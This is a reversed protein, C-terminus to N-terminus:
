KELDSLFTRVVELYGEFDYRLIGHGCEPFIALRTNPRRETMAEAMEASLLHSEGGRLLLASCSSGLWDAWWDGNLSQQSHYIDNYDFRFRWGREEEVLSELLSTGFDISLLFDTAAQITPFYVTWNLVYSLDNNVVASIDEIVLGSINRQPFRAAYQYANVGGLSYGILVPRELHLKEILLDIDGLYGARSYEPSHASWGHGRQELAVVRWEDNLANALREYYRARGFHGHLAVIPRGNGGYDIYALRNELMQLIAM